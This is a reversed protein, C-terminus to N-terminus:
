TIDVIDVQHEIRLAVSAVGTVGWLPYPICDIPFVAEPECLERRGEGEVRGGRRGGREREREKENGCVLFSKKQVM